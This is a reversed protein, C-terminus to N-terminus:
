VGEFDNHRLILEEDEELRSSVKLASSKGWCSVGLKNTKPDVGFRCFGASIIRHNENVHNNHLETEPFIIPTEVLGPSLIVVYKM